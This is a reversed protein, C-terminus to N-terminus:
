NIIIINNIDLYDICLHFNGDPKWDFFIPVGAPSKFSWIFNNALNTKIYTKLTELEIPGLRYIPGLSPQKGKELKIAYENMGINESFEM